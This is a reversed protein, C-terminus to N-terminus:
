VTWSRVEGARPGDLQPLEQQLQQRVFRALVENRPRAVAPLELQGVRVLHGAPPAHALVFWFHVVLLQATAQAVVIVFVDDVLSGALAIDVTKNAIELVQQPSNFKKSQQNVQKSKTITWLGSKSPVIKKASISWLLKMLNHVEFRRILIFVVLNHFLTHTLAKTYM